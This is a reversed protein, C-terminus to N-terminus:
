PTLHADHQHSCGKAFPFPVRVGFCSRRPHVYVAVGEQRGWASLVEHGKARQSRGDTGGGQARRVGHQKRGCMCLCVRGCACVCVCEPVSM